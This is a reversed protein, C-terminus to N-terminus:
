AQQGHITTRQSDLQEVKFKILRTLTMLHIHTGYTCAYELISIILSKYCFIKIFSPCKNLNRHLFGLTASAKKHYNSINEAWQLKENITIGLYKASSVQKISKTDMYYTTTIPSFKNTVHLFKCKNFNFPLQWTNSWKILSGIDKLLTCDDVSSIAHYLLINDAHLKIKSTVNLPIDNVFCLFLLPALVTGQPVDSSVVSPYSSSEDIIVRQHRNFLYHKIWLQLPGSIGLEMTLCNKVYDTTHSGTSHKQSTWFSATWRAIKM